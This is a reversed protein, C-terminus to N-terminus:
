DYLDEEDDDDDDAVVASASAAAAADTGSTAPFRFNSVNTGMAGREQHMRAAFGSYKRLDDDSVSRRAGVMAAEFHKRLIEPVPDVYEEEDAEDGVSAARTRQRSRRAVRRDEPGDSGESRDPREM